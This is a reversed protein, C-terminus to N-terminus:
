VRGKFMFNFSGAVPHGRPQQRVVVVAAKGHGVAAMRFAGGKIRGVVATHKAQGAKVYRARQCLQYPPPRKLHPEVVVEAGDDGGAGVRAFRRPDVVRDDINKAVHVRAAIGVRDADVVPFGALHCAAGIAKCAAADKKRFAHERQLRVGATDCKHHQGRPQPPLPEFHEIRLCM